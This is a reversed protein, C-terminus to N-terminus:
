KCKGKETNKRMQRKLFHKNKHVIQLWKPQSKWRFHIMLFFFNHYIKLATKSECFFQLCKACETQGWICVTKWTPYTNKLLMLTEATMMVSDWLFTWRQPWDNALAPFLLPNKISHGSAPIFAWPCIKLKITLSYYNMRYMVKEPHHHLWAPTIESSLFKGYM